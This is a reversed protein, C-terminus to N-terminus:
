AMLEPIPRGESILKVINTPLDQALRVKAPDFLTHLITALLNDPSYRETAPYAGKADSRGVVQGMRLGGGALVLPTLDGWHGTGGGSKGGKKAPSRGMEATIVLLIKQDLGRERVDELFAAVAHDAQPGLIPMGVSAPPNNGDDHFDWCSDVVTVFGCGAECLRRAMLMQKGLLNTTRSFNPRFLKGGKHIESLNILKSTDYKAVTRADEKSLDFASAVGKLLVDYAQQQFADMGDLTRTGDLRRRLTDIQGLLARRDDFREPALALKLDELLGNGGFPSFPATDAGLAGPTAFYRMTQNFTFAGSPGGLKLTPDIAEPLLLANTPIGTKPHLGGATRAYISGAV